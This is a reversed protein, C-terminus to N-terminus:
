GRGVRLVAHVYEGRGSLRAFRDLDRPADKGVRLAAHGEVLHGHQDARRLLVQSQQFM